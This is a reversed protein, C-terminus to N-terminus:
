NDNVYRECGNKFEMSVDEKKQRDVFYQCWQLSRVLDRPLMQGRKFHFALNQAASLDGGKAAREYWMIAADPSKSVGEGTLYMLALFSQSGVHGREAATTFWAAAQTKDRVGSTGQYYFRALNFQSELDGTEAKSRWCQEAINYQKATVAAECTAFIRPPSDNGDPTNESSGCNIYERFVWGHIGGDPRGVLAWTKGRAARSMQYMSVNDGNYLVESLRRGGPTARVNLPTGTPDAVICGTPPVQSLNYDECIKFKPYKKCYADNFGVSSGFGVIEPPRQGLCSRALRDVAIARSSTGNEQIGWMEIADQDQKAAWQKCAALSLTQPKPKLPPMTARAASIGFLTLCVLSMKILRRHGMVKQITRM